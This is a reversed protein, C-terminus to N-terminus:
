SRVAGAGPFAAGFLEEGLLHRWLLLKAEDYSLEPSRARIGEIALERMRESLEFALEARRAAWGHM